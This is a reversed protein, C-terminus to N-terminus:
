YKQIIGINRIQYYSLKCIYNVQNDMGIYAGLNGVAISSNIYNFASKIYLNENQKVHQKSSFVICETKDKYIKLMNSNIWISIDVIHTETESSIDDLKNCPKLTRYVQTVNAYYYYKISHWKIIKGVPKTYM